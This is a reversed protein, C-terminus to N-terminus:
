TGKDFLIGALILWDLWCDSAQLGNIHDNHPLKPVMWDFEEISQWQVHSVVPGMASTSVGGVILAYLRTGDPLPPFTIRTSDGQGVDIM